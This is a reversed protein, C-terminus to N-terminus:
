PDVLEVQLRPHGVPVAFVGLSQIQQLQVRQEQAREVHQGFGGPDDRLGGALDTSKASRGSVLSMDSGLTRSVHSSSRSPRVEAIKWISPPPM